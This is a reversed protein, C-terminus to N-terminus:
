CNLIGEGGRWEGRRGEERREMMYWEGEEGGRGECNGGGGVLGM